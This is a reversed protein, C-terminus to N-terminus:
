QGNVGRGLLLGIAGGILIVYIPNMKLLFLEILSLLLIAINFINTKMKLAMDFTLYAIEGAVGTLIGIFLKQVFSFKTINVFFMSIATIIILSPLVVGLTAFSSGLIGEQEYGVFTAMNIAIPG